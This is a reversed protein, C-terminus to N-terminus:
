ARCFSSRLTCSSAYAPPLAPCENGLEPGLAALGPEMVSALAAGPPCPAGSGLSAAASPALLPQRSGRSRQEEPWCPPAVCARCLAAPAPPPPGCGALTPEPLLLGGPCSTIAGSFPCTPGAPPVGPWPMRRNRSASPLFWVRGRRHAGAQPRDGAAARSLTQAPAPAIRFLHLSWAAILLHLVGVCGLGQEAVGSATLPSCCCRGGESRSSWSSLRPVGHLCPTIADSLPPNAM